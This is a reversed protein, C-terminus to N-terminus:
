VVRQHTERAENIYSRGEEGLRVRGWIHQTQITMCCTEIKPVLGTLFTVSILHVSAGPIKKVLTFSDGALIKDLRSLTRTPLRTREVSTEPIPAVASFQM